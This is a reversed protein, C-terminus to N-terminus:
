KKYVSRLDLINFPNNNLGIINKQNMRVSMDYYLPVIPAYNQIIDELKKYIKNLSMKNTEILTKEYLEDYMKNSFFTYNPGYPTHNKSYFLSFYNEPNGYDAIWSARFVDFKGTAKGQRLISPPTININLSIGILKLESQVFELVDLYQADTSVDLKIENVNNLEKYENILLKAKDINKTYRNTNFNSNLGNPVIGNSAPYGINKRLFKIMKERDIAYNIAKRLLIDRDLKNKTNFGIYETNLYPSKSLIYKDEFKSNLNGNIDFIQDIITNEPASIFDLNGSLFEMFESKKDPIFRISIADLYPLSNALSDVEFYNENKILVMKINEDWRKFKFPGTGIPSKSFADGLNEVVEKPVVSCYKMTLIEIFSSFQKHLKVSFISDNIAEFSEVNNMIWSGPSAINKDIIRNFSYEFDYANVKRTGNEFFKSKHFYIDDRIKFRYEKKDESITWDKALDSVVNLKTDMKVLGNFLQNCPWINRLTSSYAPDLSSINSYENYRFVNENNTRNNSCSITISIILFTIFKKDLVNM